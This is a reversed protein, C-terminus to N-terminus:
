VMALVVIMVLAVPMAAIAKEEWTLKYIFNNVVEKVTVKSM